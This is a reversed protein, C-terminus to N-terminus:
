STVSRPQRKKEFEQWLEVQREQAAQRGAARAQDLRSRYFTDYRTGDTPGMVHGLSWGCAIGLAVSFALGVWKM